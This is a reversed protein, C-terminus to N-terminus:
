GTAQGGPPLALGAQAEGTAQLLEGDIVRGSQAARLSEAMWQKVIASSTDQGTLRAFNMMATLVTAALQQNLELQKEEIGSQLALRTVHALHSREQQYVIALGSPRSETKTSTFGGGPGGERDETTTSTTLDTVEAESLEQELWLVMLQSRQVEELLVQMPSVTLVANATEERVRAPLAKRAMANHFLCFTNDIDDPDIREQRCRGGTRKIFTCRMDDPPSSTGGM